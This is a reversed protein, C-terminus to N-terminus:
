DGGIERTEGLRGRGRWDGGTEGHRGLRGMDGM